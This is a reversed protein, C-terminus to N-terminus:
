KLRKGVLVKISGKKIGDPKVAYHREGSPFQDSLRAKHRNAKFKVATDGYGSIAWSNKTSAYVETKRFSKITFGKWASQKGPKFGEKAIQGASYSDTRHFLTLMKGGYDSRPITNRGKAKRAKELNRRSAAIQAATRVRRKPM